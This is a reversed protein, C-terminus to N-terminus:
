CVQFFWGCVCANLKNHLLHFWYRRMYVCVGLCCVGCLLGMLLAAGIILFLGSVSRYVRGEQCSSWVSIVAETHCVLRAEVLFESAGGLGVWGMQNTWRM